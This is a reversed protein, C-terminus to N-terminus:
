KPRALKMAENFWLAVLFRGEMRCAGADFARLMASEDSSTMAELAERPSRWIQAFDPRAHRGTHYTLRGDSLIFHGGVGDKTQIQFVFNEEGLMQALRISTRTARSLLWATVRLLFRLKLNDFFVGM